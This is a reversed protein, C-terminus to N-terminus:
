LFTVYYIPKLLLARTLTSLQSHLLDKCVISLFQIKIFSTLSTYTFLNNYNPFPDSIIPRASDARLGAAKYFLCTPHM